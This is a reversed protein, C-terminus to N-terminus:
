RLGGAATLSESLFYYPPVKKRRSWAVPAPTFTVVPLGVYPLYTAVWWSFIFVGMTTYWNYM